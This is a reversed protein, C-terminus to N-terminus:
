KGRCFFNYVLFLNSQDTMKLYARSVLVGFGWFGTTLNIKNDPHVTILSRMSRSAIYNIFTFLSHELCCEGRSEEGGHDDGLVAFVELTVSVDCKRRFGFGVLDPALDDLVRGGAGPM